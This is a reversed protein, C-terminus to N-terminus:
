ATIAAVAATETRLVRPGLNLAQFGHTVALSIEQDSLGGEPGILLVVRAKSPIALQKLKCEAYPSLVLRFDAQVNPLWNELSQPMIIEPVRNRGSQECASIMVSQWHQIRKESRESDLKVNCRESFLPIIKSVGLEVAKQITYDMKEGRSIGQALWIELSSEVDRAIFEKLDVMVTKKNIQQIVGSYEGGQGNFLIVKDGITARLVRALHHSAFEDLTITSHPSLESAQYIRTM